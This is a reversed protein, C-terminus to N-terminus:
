ESIPVAIVCVLGFALQDPLSAPVVKGSLLGPQQWFAVDGWIKGAHVPLKAEWRSSVPRKM